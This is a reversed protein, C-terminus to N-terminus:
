SFYFNELKEMFREERAARALKGREHKEELVVERADEDEWEKRWVGNRYLNRGKILKLEGNELEITFTHQQKKKGYSERIIRGTIM